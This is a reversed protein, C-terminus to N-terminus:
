LVGSFWAYILLLEVIFVAILTVAELDAEFPAPPLMAEQLKLEDPTPSWRQPPPTYGRGIRLGTSTTYPVTM